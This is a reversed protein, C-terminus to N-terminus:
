YKPPASLATLQRPETQLAPRQRSYYEAIQEIDADSLTTVFTAMVANSRELADPSADKHQYEHLVQVLYDAHQGALSPYAGSPSVGDKGHCAVCLQAVKPPPTGVTTGTSKLPTGGSLYAAVDEMDQESLSEAQVHMTGHSREKDKYAKLAAVIYEPHQGVLAPVSYNPYANKYSAIGHCGLCTYALVKGNAANGAAAASGSVGPTLVPAVVICLAKIWSTKRLVM